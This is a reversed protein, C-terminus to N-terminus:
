CSPWRAPSWSCIWRRASRLGMASARVPGGPEVEISAQQVQFPPPRSGGGPLLARQPRFAEGAEPPGRVSTGQSGFQAQLGPDRRAGHGASEARAAAGSRRHARGARRCRRAMVARECRAHCPGARGNAVTASTLDIALKGGRLQARAALQGISVPAGAVRAVDLDLRADFARLPALPLPDDFASRAGPKAARSGFRALDLVAMSAEGHIQPRGDRWRLTGEGTVATGALTAALDQLRLEDDRWRMRGALKRAPVPLGTIAEIRLSLDAEVRPHWAAEGAGDVDRPRAEGAASALAKVEPRNLDLSGLELAGSLLGRPASAYALDGSVASALVRGRINRAAYGERSRTM